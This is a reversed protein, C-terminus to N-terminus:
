IGPADRIGWFSESGNKWLDHIRDINLDNWDLPQLAPAMEESLISLHAVTELEGKM